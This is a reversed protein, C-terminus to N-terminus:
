MEYALAIWQPIKALNQWWAPDQLGRYTQQYYDYYNAYANPDVQQENRNDIRNLYTQNYYVDLAYLALEPVFFFLNTYPSWM